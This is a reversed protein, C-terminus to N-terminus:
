NNHRFLRTWAASFLQRYARIYKKHRLAYIFANAISNIGLLGFFIRKVRRPLGLGKFDYDSAIHYVNLINYPVLCCTFVGVIIAFTKVARMEVLLHRLWTMHLNFPEKETETQKPQQKSQNKQLPVQELQSEVQKSQMQEMEVQKSQIQGMEAQESQIQEMEALKSHMQETEVQKSQLQEMEVHESQIQEMEALKSQMQEMEVQKSQLQEMEVQESQIQEMEALKSHMQETEVQKSQIQNTEVQKSQLQEMEVQKSQIQEMKVQKSQIQGMEVQEFQIQEMNVQESQIQEMEVQKSQIQELILQEPKLQKLQIQELKSQVQKNETQESSAADATKRITSEGHTNTVTNTLNSGRPESQPRKPQVENLQIRQLVIAESAIRLRQDKVIKCMKCNLIAIICIPVLQFIINLWIVHPPYPCKVRSCNKNKYIDILISPLQAMAALWICVLIVSTRQKTVISPYRLPRAIYLYRDITIFLLIMVSLFSSAHFITCRITCLPKEHKEGASTAISTLCVLLDAFALHTILWSGSTKRPNLITNYFIVATNGLVGLLLFISNLVLFTIRDDNIHRGTSNAGCKM